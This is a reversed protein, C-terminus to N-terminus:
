AGTEQVKEEHLLRELEEGAVVGERVLAEALAELQERRDELLAVATDEARQLHAQVRGRLEGDFRLHGVAEDPRARWLATDGLGWSIELAAALMTARALDSDPTGGAGASPAGLVLREAARGALLTVLAAEIGPRSNAGPAFRTEVFGGDGHIAIRTPAGHGSIRAAIAHGAEHLAIRRRLERDLPPRSAELAAELHAPALPEAERRALARAERVLRAIEAGSMGIARKALPALDADQLDPHLHWRLAQPLLDPEPHELVLLQDFRGPRRLAADIKQVRNTAAITVVGETTEFGDLCELLGGVIIDTWASNHDTPRDRDGFADIEDLFVIAPAGAAAGAFVDRLERIVESSRAGTAQLRALSSAHVPIGADRAILRALETKGCGPPGSLLLGRSVDAWPLTGARWDRLDTLLQDVAARVPRPLPFDRLGPRTDPPPPALAVALRQCLAAGDPARLALILADLPLRGLAVDGPLAAADVPDLDPRLLAMAHGLTERDLHALDIVEPALEAVPKPLGAGTPAVLIVPRRLELATAVLTNLGAFARDRDGHRDGYRDVADALTAVFPTAASPPGLDPLLARLVRQVMPGLADDGTAVLTIAGPARLRAAMETDSGFSRAIRLAAITPLVRPHLGARPDRRPPLPLTAPGFVEEPDPLDHPNEPDPDDAPHDWDPEGTDTSDQDPLARAEADPDADGEDSTDSGDVEEAGAPDDDEHETEQAEVFAWTRHDPAALADLISEAFAQWDATAGPVPSPAFSSPLAPAAGSAPRVPASPHCAQPGNSPLHSASGPANGPCPDLSPCSNQGTVPALSPSAVDSAAPAPAPALCPRHTM